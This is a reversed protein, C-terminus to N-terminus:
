AVIFSVLRTHGTGYVPWRWSSISFHMEAHGVITLQLLLIVDM